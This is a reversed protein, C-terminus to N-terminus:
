FHVFYVQTKQHQLKVQNFRFYHNMIDTMFYTNKKNKKVLVRDKDDGKLTTKLFSSGSQQQLLKKKQYCSIITNQLQKQSSIKKESLFYDVKLKLSKLDRKITKMFFTTAVHKFFCNVKEDTIKESTFSSKV